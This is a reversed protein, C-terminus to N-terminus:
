FTNIKKFKDWFHVSFAKQPWKTRLYKQKRANLFTMNGGPRVFFRKQTHVSMIKYRIHDELLESINFIYSTMM